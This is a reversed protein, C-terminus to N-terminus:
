RELQVKDWLLSLTIYPFYILPSKGGGNGGGGFIFVVVPGIM